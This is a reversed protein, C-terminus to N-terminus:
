GGFVVRVVRKGDNVPLRAGVLVVVVSGEEQLEEQEEEKTRHQPATQKLLVGSSAYSVNWFCRQLFDIGSRAAPTGNRRCHDPVLLFVGYEKGYCVRVVLM